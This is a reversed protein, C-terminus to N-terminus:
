SYLLEKGGIPSIAVAIEESVIGLHTATGTDTTSPTEAFMQDTATVTVTDTGTDKLCQFTSGAFPFELLRISTQDFDRLSLRSDDPIVVPIGVTSLRAM